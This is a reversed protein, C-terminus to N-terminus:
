NMPWPERDSPAAADLRKPLAQPDTEIPRLPLAGDGALERVFADHNSLLQEIAFERARQNAADAFARRITSHGISYAAEDTVFRPKRSGAGLHFITNDYIGAIIPHFNWRNSRELRLFKQSDQHLQALIGSGTEGPRSSLECASSDFQVRQKTSFSSASNRWFERGFMTFAAFPFNDGMETRVITAVPAHDSIANSYLRDWAELTPWSDMDFTAVHTCGDAIARDVLADLARAHEQSIDKDRPPSPLTLVGRANMLELTKPDGNPCCGYVRYAGTTHRKIQDLSLRLLDYGESEGVLYM